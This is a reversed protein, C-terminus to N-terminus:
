IHWSPLSINTKNQYINTNNHMENSKITVKHMNNNVVNNEFLTSTLTEGLLM